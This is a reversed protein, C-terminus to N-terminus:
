FCSLEAIKVRFNVNQKIKYKCIMIVESFEAKISYMYGNGSYERIQKQVDFIKSSINIPNNVNYFHLSLIRM